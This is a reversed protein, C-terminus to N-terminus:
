DFHVEKELVDKWEELCTETLNFKQWLEESLIPPCGNGVGEFGLRQALCDAVHVTEPVESPEPILAPDHHCQVSHVLFGPLNWWSVLYGGIEDHSHGLINKEATRLLTTEKQALQIAEEMETGFYRAEVLKGMDHILGATFAQDMVEAAAEPSRHTILKRALIGVAMCHKQYQPKQFWSVQGPDFEQSLATSLVVGAVMDLGMVVIARRVTDVKNMQGFIPSNAWRLLSATIGVDNELIHSIEPISTKERDTLANQLKLYIEPMAPVSPINNMLAHLSDCIEKHSHYDQLAKRITAQLEHDCWPKALVMHASGEALASALDDSESYGSLFFRVTEPHRARVERLFEQGNMGAMRYDSVVLDVPNEALISLAEPGSEAFLLEWEEDIFLRRLSKLINPEDDVFLVTPLIESTM